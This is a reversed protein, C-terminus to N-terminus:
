GPIPSFVQPVTAEAPIRRLAWMSEFLTSRALEAVPGSRVRPSVVLLGAGEDREPTSALEGRDPGNGPGVVAAISSLGLAPLTWRDVWRGGDIVRESDRMWRDPPPDASGSWSADPTSDIEPM